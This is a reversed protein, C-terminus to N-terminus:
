SAHAGRAGAQVQWMAAYPGAAAVLEQHRGREVTRGGDLVVIETADCVAALDHTVVLTTCRERLRRLPELVHASAHADLAATPEDLVLV